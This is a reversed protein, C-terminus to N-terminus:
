TFIVFVDLMGISAVSISNVFIRALFIFQLFIRASCTLEAATKSNLTLKFYKLIIHCVCSETITMFEMRPSKSAAFLACCACEVANRCVAGDCLHTM